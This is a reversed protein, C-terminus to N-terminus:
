LASLERALRDIVCEHYEPMSQLDILEQLFEAGTGNSSSWVKTLKGKLALPQNREDINHMYYFALAQRRMEEGSLPMLRPTQLYERYQDITKATRSFDFSHHPHRACSISPVGYYALEHAVTGYVTVGCIMGGNILQTSTIRPSLVKVKPYRERMLLVANASEQLQNPHPKLYFSIGTQSLTDITFAMWAWFDDFIMDHFSHPSDCFDHLFVVVSDRVDPMKEDNTAYASVKMYSTAEDIGGSLRNRLKAEAEILKDDQKPLQEFLCRYNVEEVSGAHYLDSESLKKCFALPSGFM